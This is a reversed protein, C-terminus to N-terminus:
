PRLNFWGSRDCSWIESSRRIIAMAVIDCTLYQVHGVSTVPRAIAAIAASSGARIPMKAPYGRRGARGRAPSIQGPARALPRHRHRNEPRRPPDGSSGRYSSRFATRLSNADPRTAITPASIAVAIRLATGRTQSLARRGQRDLAVQAYMGLKHSYIDTLRSVDRTTPQQWLGV